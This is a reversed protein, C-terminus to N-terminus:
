ESAEEVHDRDKIEKTYGKIFNYNTWNLYTEEIYENTEPQNPSEMDTTIIDGDFTTDLIIDSEVCDFYKVADNRSDFVDSPIYQGGKFQIICVRIAYDDMPLTCKESMINFPLFASLISQDEVSDVVQLVYDNYVVEDSTQTAPKINYGTILQKRSEFINATDFGQGTIMKVYHGLSAGSNYLYIIPARKALLERDQLDSQVTYMDVSLDLYELELNCNNSLNFRVVKGNCKLLQGNFNQESYDYVVSRKTDFTHCFESPHTYNGCFTCMEVGVNYEVVLSIEPTDNRYKKSLLEVCEHSCILNSSDFLTLVDQQFIFRKMTINQPNDFRAKCQSCEPLESELIAKVQEM